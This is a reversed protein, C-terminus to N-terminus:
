LETHLALVPQGAVADGPAGGTVPEEEALLRDRDDAAPVRRHLLRGEEGPEGALDVDDVAALRQPGGPDHLLPREVVRLDLEHPVRLDGGDVAVAEERADRQGRGDTLGVTLEREVPQEDRDAVVRPGVEHLVLELQRGGAGDADVAARGPGREGADEGRAVHDVGGVTLGDRGGRGARDGGQVRLVVEGREGGVNERPGEALRRGALCGCRTGLERRGALQDSARLRSGGGGRLLLLAIRSTVSAVNSFSTSCASFGTRTSKQAAHHPGQRRTAGTSSSIAASCAPLISITFSFTSSFGSVAM